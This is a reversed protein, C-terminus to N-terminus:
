KKRKKKKEVLTFGDKDVIPLQPTPCCCHGWEYEMGCDECYEKRFYRDGIQTEGDPGYLDHGKCWEKNQVFGCYKWTYSTM